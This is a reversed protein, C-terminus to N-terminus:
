NPKYGLIAHKPILGYKTGDVDIMSSQSLNAMISFGRKIGNDDTSIAVVKLFGDHKSEKEAEIMDHSKILGGETKEEIVPLEVLVAGHMPIFNINKM